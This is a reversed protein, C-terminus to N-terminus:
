FKDHCPRPTDPPQPSQGGSDRYARSRTGCVRPCSQARRMPCSRACSGGRRCWSCARSRVNLRCSRARSGGSLSSRAHCRKLCCCARSWTPYSRARSLLLYYSRARSLLLYYSRARSWARSGGNRPYSRAAASRARGSRPRLSTRATIRLSASCLSLSLVHLSPTLDSNYGRGRISIKAGCTVSHFSLCIVWFEM